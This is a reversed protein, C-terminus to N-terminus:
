WFIRHEYNEHEIADQAQHRSGRQGPREGPEIPANRTPQAPQVPTPAPAVLPPSESTSEPRLAVVAGIAGVSLLVALLLGGIILLANPGMGSGARVPPPGYAPAAFAVPAAAMGPAPRAAPSAPFHGAQFDAGPIPGPASVETGRPVHQPSPAVNAAAASQASPGVMMNAAAASQASPGVMMNAAAASQASPGVTPPVPEAVPPRPNPATPPPPTARAPVSPTPDVSTNTGTSRPQLEPSHGEWPDGADVQTPGPSSPGPAAPAAQEVVTPPVARPPKPAATMEETMRGPPPAGEQQNGGSGDKESM